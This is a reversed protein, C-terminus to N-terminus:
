TRRSASIATIIRPRRACCISGTAARARAAQHHPRHRCLGVHLPPDRALQPPRRGGRRFRHRPKRGVAPDAAAAASRGLRRQHPTRRRPRLGPMRAGLQLRPPQRRAPGVPHGRRRCLARRSRDPRRPRRRRRRLYLPRRPRGPDAGPSTSASTPSPWGRPSPRSIRSSSSRARPPQHRSPRLRPRAAEARPRDRPRRHRAAGAGRAPRLAEHLPPRQDAAEAGGGEGRMAETILFNKVERITSAPRTSSTSNWTPSAAAPAGPWPSATAPRQRASQDFLALGPQRRRDRPHDRTRHLARGRGSDRDVAYVGWVRREDDSAQACPPRHGPRDRGHEPILSINPHAAAAKELAQQVAWGTADDVHVIRRHSHGGERTLHWREAEGPNFPVGLEALREIAAPANEVVFEVTGRDNLGAGAIM